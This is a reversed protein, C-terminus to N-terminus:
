HGHARHFAIDDAGCPARDCHYPGHMIALVLVGLLSIAALRVM